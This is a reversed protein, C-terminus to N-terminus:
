SPEPATVAAEILAVSRGECDVRAHVGYPLTLMPDTHGFDMGTVIPLDQLGEEDNVVKLLAQDYLAFEATPTQGGPRGLLIASIRRLIGQAALCRLMRHVHLPPPKEESTELFLVAGEWQEPEPWVSSGRLWDLVELCGGILPGESVGSGQLFNWGGPKQLRRAQQQLSSDAWDLREVTWGEGNPPLEGAPTAQFLLSRLARSMYPFIGGNEAFNAMISPGYFSGLGAKLCAFHTVTSDSYGLFIKPNARIVDFDLYPLIRISDEGGITSVIANVAPDAFASMLDEARAQPNRALWEPPHLAHATEVVRLDFEEMLQRKGAAYRHPYAGPGGWSLSIAAVTDGPSLKPPKQLKLM